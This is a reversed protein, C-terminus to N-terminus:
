NKRRIQKTHNILFPKSQNADIVWTKGIKKSSIKGESCLNKIYGPSLGWLQSAESVGIVSKLPNTM